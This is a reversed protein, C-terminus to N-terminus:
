ADDPEARGRDGARACRPFVRVPPVRESACSTITSYQLTWLGGLSSGTQELRFHPLRAGPAM